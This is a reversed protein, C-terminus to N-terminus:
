KHADNPAFDPRVRTTAGYIKSDFYEKKLSDLAEDRIVKWLPFREDEGLFPASYMLASYLIADPGMELLDNTSNEESLPEPKGYYVIRLTDTTKPIPAFYATRGLFAVARPYRGGQDNDKVDSLKDWSVVNLRRLNPTQIEFHIPRKFGAPMAMTEQDVVFDKTTIMEGDVLGVKRSAYAEGLEIWSPIRAKLDRRSINKEIEQVLETYNKISM